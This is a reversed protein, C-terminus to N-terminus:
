VLYIYTLVPSSFIPLGVILIPFVKNGKHTMGKFLM